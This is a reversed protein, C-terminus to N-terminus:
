QTGITFKSKKFNDFNFHSTPRTANPYISDNVVLGFHMMCKVIELQCNPKTFYRKLAPATM